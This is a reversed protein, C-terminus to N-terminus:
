REPPPHSADAPWELRHLAPAGPLRYAIRWLSETGPWTLGTFQDPSVVSVVSAGRERLWAKLAPPM